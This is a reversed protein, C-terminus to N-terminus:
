AAGESASEAGRNRTKSACGTVPACREHRAEDFARPSRILEVRLVRIM